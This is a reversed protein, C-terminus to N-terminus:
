LHCVWFIVSINKESQLHADTRLSRLFSDGYVTPLKAYVPNGLVWFKRAINMKAPTSNTIYRFYKFVFYEVLLASMTFTVIVWYRRMNTLQNNAWLLAAAAAMGNMQSSTMMQQPFQNGMTNRVNRDFRQDYGTSRTYPLNPRQNTHRVVPQMKGPADRGINGVKFHLESGSNQSNTFNPQSMSRHYPLTASERTGPNLAVAPSTPPTPMFRSGTSATSSLMPNFGPPFPIPSPTVAQGMLGISNTTRTQLQIPKHFLQIGNMLQITFPM